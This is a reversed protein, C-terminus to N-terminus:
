NRWRKVEFIVSWHTVGSSKPSIYYLFPYFGQLPVTFGILAQCRSRRNIINYLCRIWIKCAFQVILLDCRQSKAFAINPFLHLHDPMRYLLGICAASCDRMSPTKNQIHFLPRCLSMHHLIAKCAYSRAMLPCFLKLSQFWLCRFFSTQKGSCVSIHWWVPNITMFNQVSACNWGRSLTCNTNRHSASKRHTRGFLDEVSMPGMSVSLRERLPALQHM